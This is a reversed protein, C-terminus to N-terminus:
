ERRLSFRRVSPLFLLALQLLSTVTGIGLYWLSCAAAVVMGWWAWVRRRLFAVVVVLWAAGYALFFVKMSTSRPEVGVASVVRAWPGLQGAYPGTRFSLYDGWALARAGEAAMWGAELLALGAVACALVSRKGTSM